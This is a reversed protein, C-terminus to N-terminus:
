GRRRPGRSPTARRFRTSRSAIPSRRSSGTGPSRTTSRRPGPGQTSRAGQAKKLEEDIIEVFKAKPQAGVLRRGNIFFHPTGNAQFDDATDGDVDIEAPHAHKAIASQVKDARAGAAM